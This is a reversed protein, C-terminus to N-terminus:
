KIELTSGVKVEFDKEIIVENEADIIVDANNQITVNDVKIDCGNITEDSTITRNTVLTEVCRYKGDL